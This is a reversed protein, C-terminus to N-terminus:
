ALTDKITRESSNRGSFSRKHEFRLLASLAAFGLDFGEQIFVFFAKQM